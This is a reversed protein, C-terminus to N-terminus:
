FNENNNEEWFNLDKLRYYCDMIHLHGYDGIRYTFIVTYSKQFHYKNEDINVFKYNVNFYDCLIEIEEYKMTKCHTLIEPLKISKKNYFLFHNRLGLECNLDKNPTWVVGLGKREILIDIVGKGEEMVGYYTYVLADSNNFVQFSICFNYDYEGYEVAKLYIINFAPVEEGLLEEVKNELYNYMFGKINKM